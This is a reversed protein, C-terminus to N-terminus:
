NSLVADLDIRPHGATALNVVKVTHTGATMWRDFVIVRNTNVRANTDVTAVKVGDVYVAAKGRGPGKAMVLAVHDDRDYTRTFTVSANKASTNRMAGWSACTCSTTGWAGGYSITGPDVLESSDRGDEQTVVTEYKTRIDITTTNGTCDQAKLHWGQHSDDSGGLAGDYEMVSDVVQDAYPTARPAQVSLLLRGYEEPEFTAESSTLAYIQFACIRSSNDTVTWRVVM